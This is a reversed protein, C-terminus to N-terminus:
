VGGADVMPRRGLHGNVLEERVSVCGQIGCFARATVGHVGVRSYEQLLLGAGSAARVNQGGVSTSRLSSCERHPSRLLIRRAVVDRYPCLRDRCRPDTGSGRTCGPWGLIGRRHGDVIAM